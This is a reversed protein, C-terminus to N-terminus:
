WSRVLANQLSNFASNGDVQFQGNGLDTVAPATAGLSGSFAQLNGSTSSSSAATTAAAAVSSSVATAVESATTSAVETAATSAVSSAAAGSGTGAAVVNGQDDVEAVSAFNTTIGFAANFADAQAGTKATQADAAATATACTDKATQDAGCTNTLTDCIFQTIIDINQASGHNFSATFPM